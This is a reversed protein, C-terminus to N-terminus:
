TFHSSCYDVMEKGALEATSADTRIFFHDSGKLKLFVGEDSKSVTIACVTQGKINEFNIQFHKAFHNSISSPLYTKILDVIMRRYGDISPDQLFRFEPEVGIIEISNDDKNEKVGIILVGGGSNLFGAIAKSIIIKSVAKGYTHLENSQPRHNKIDDATFKSSWLADSKYEVNHNEGNKKILSRLSIKQKEYDVSSDTHPQPIPKSSGIIKKVRGVESTELSVLIGHPHNAARTLIEAVVGQVRIKRSRDSQPNIEVIMGIKPIDNSTNMKDM